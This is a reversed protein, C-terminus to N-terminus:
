FAERVYSQVRQVRDADYTWLGRWVNTETEEAILAVPGHPSAASVTAPPQFVVFWLRRLEPSRDAHIEVPLETVVSPDDRIGYVHTDVASEALWEYVRQTGFEDDLRSLYQFSADFEGSGHSLARFEIFRSILILLLKEKNSEPYGRVTFEIDDLKTLVDPFAENEIAKTGTRYRDSNVLLFSEKLEAWPSTAVVDGEEVLCVLDRQGESLQRDAVTVSASEFVRELADVQPAAATDTLTILLLTKAPQGVEDISDGLSKLM